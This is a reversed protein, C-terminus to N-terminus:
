ETIGKYNDTRFPVAPLGKANFLNADPNDSWCYRIAVPKAVKDSYVLVKDGLIYAKAWEFSSDTGAIAFGELYGYKNKVILGGDANDFYVIVKNEEIDMGKFTPGSYIVNQQGYEKHLAILALRLGVDQKNRPHVDYADGIDITVAQGTQPLSLTMTQAERLEAWKSDKPVDDKPHFGPLQVWYVPFEYGWKQRWNNIFLPFLTRYSYGNETNNEGQYWLVGKIPYEIIPNIMANYLVSSYANPHIDTTKIAQEFENLNLDKYKEKFSYPLKSFEDPSIWTEIESGGWSSNIIGVPIDLEKYLKRAFFYAVASFDPVTVPSCVSWQGRLETEPTLSMYKQVKFHRIQPYDANKVEEDYNNVKAFSNLTMEMNSQGSCLWVEGILIDNIIITNSKGKVQMIYPGGYPLPDVFLSWNGQKDAKTKKIKDGIRIEIAENKDSWGWVKIQKGAQMVMHDSFIAPLRVEAQMQNVFISLCLIIYIQIKM